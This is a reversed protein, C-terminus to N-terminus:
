ATAALSGEWGEAPTDRRAVLGHAQKSQPLRMLVIGLGQLHERVDRIGLIDVAVPHLRDDLEDFHGPGNLVRLLEKPPQGFRLGQRSREGAIRAPVQEVDMVPHSKQGEHAMRHALGKLPELLHQHFRPLHAVFFQQRKRGHLGGPDQCALSLKALDFRQEGGNEWPQFLAGFQVSQIKARPKRPM